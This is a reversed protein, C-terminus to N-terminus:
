GENELEEILDLKKNLLTINRKGSEIKNRFERVLAESNKSKAFFGINNEWLVIDNELQKLKSIIKNREQIIRSEFQQEMKWQELKNKFKQLTKHSEDMNLHDFRFNILSRFEKYIRDKEKIPVFGIESWRRQFDQLTKFTEDNDEGPEFQKLEEILAEKLKLNQEQEVDKNKFFESKRNFFHDCASRFKKWLADSHKRPVPGIEKWRKQIRIYEQTTNRWDTSEKLNEAQEILENKLQMNQLQEEKHRKFFDRKMEFFQDCAKRFRLYIDQNEKKPAFGITKWVQQIEIIAKSNKDWESYNKLDLELIAEVKECLEKKAELNKLQQEKLEEYYEQHKQNIKVTAARFREWLEDKNEKPVPGIERWLDHYKQLTKFAKLISPDLLLQEAKECLDLKAEYNKKLDLDRLEKNIKIYNYFNEVHLHYNEWMDHVEKQPVPGIEHWRKQLARFEDFTHHLSEQRNVLEKIGEIVEYKAALNRKKEEEIRAREEERKKRYTQIAEQMADSLDDHPPTFAEAPEGSAVFKEKLKSLEAASKNEFEKRINELHEKIVSAPYENLLQHYRKLLDERSLSTYDEDPPINQEKKDQESAETKPEAAEEVPQSATTESSENTNDNQEAVTEEAGQEKESKPADGETGGIALENENPQSQAATAEVGKAGAPQDEEPTPESQAIDAAESKQTEEANKEEPNSSEVVRNEANEQQSEEPKEVNRDPTSHNAQSQTNETAKESNLNMEKDSSKNLDNALM